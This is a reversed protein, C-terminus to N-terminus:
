AAGDPDSAAIPGDYPEDYFEGSGNAHRSLKIALLKAAGDTRIQVVVAYQGSHHLLKRVAAIPRFGDSRLGAAAHDLQIGDRQVDYQTWLADASHVLGPTAIAM